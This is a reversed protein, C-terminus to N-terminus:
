KRILVVYFLPVDAMRVRPSGVLIFCIFVMKITKVSIKIIVFKYVSKQLPSPKLLTNLKINEILM